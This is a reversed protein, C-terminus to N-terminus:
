FKVTTRMGVVWVNDKAKIAPDVGDSFGGPDIVYQLDFKLNLWPTVQLGYWAEIPIENNGASVNGCLGSICKSNVHTTGVALAISDDPRSAFFGGVQQLGWAIQYDQVATRDDAVSANFFTFLGHDPDAADKYGGPSRLQQWISVYAGHQGTQVKGNTISAADDNDYWGGIKWLGSLGGFNSKWNLEVPILTGAGPNGVTIPKNYSRAFTPFLAPDDKLSLYNPNADYFGVQLQLDHPLNFKVIGAMQSVPWNYIYSGQINGPQGGCFTLNVFDCKQFFFDTGVALRGGKLELWGGALKQDWALDVLRLINGRGFVEDTLQLAPINDNSNLNIGWRQVMKATVTSGPIGFQKDGDITVGFGLQGANAGGTRSGGSLNGVAEDVLTAWVDIGQAKLSTRGLDGLLYQRTWIDGGSYYYSPTDKLSVDRSLDAASAVGGILSAVAFALGCVRAARTSQGFM